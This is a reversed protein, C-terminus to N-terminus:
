NESFINPSFLRFPFGREGKGRKTKQRRAFTVTLIIKRGKAM